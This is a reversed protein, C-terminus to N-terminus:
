QALRNLFSRSSFLQVLFEGFNGDGNVYANDADVLSCGDGVQEHRSMWFRFAQRAVCQRVAPSSALKTMMDAVGSYPERTEDAYVFQGSADVPVGNEMTRYRGYHDYQEFAYGMPDMVRHCGVCRPDSSHIEVKERLTPKEPLPPIMPIELAPVEGCLLMERVFKGRQVLKNETASSWGALWQPTTLLGAREPEPLTFKQRATVTQMIGYSRFTMPSAFVTRTTLLTEIFKSSLNSGILDPVLAEMDALLEVPVHTSSSKSVTLVRDYQLYERLFQRINDTASPLLRRAESRIQDETALQGAMAAAYLAQDPPFGTLSYSLGAAIEFQTLRVLGAADPTGEGIETRFVFYPSAILAQIVLAAAGDRGLAAAATNALQRYYTTEDAALPRQFALPGFEALMTGVCADIATATNSLCNQPRAKYATIVQTATDNSLRELKNFEDTTVSGPNVTTFTQGFATGDLFPHETARPSAFGRRGNVLVNVAREYQRNTLKVIRKGALGGTTPKCEFTTLPRDNGGGGGTANGGGAAGSGSAGSGGAAGAGDDVFGEGISGTCGAIAIAAAFVGGAMRRGARQSTGQGTHAVLADRLVPRLHHKESAVLM